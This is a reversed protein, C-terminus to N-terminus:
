LFLHPQVSQSQFHFRNLYQTSHIFRSLNLSTTTLFHSRFHPCFKCLDVITVNVDLYFFPTFFLLGLVWVRSITVVLDVTALMKFPFYLWLCLLTSTSFTRFSCLFSLSFHIHIVMSVNETASFYHLNKNSENEFTKLLKLLLM